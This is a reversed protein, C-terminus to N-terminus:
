TAVRDELLHLIIDETQLHPSCMVEKWPICHPFPHPSEPHTWPLCAQCVRSLWRLFTLMLAPFDHQCHAIRQTPSPGKGRLDEELSLRSFRLCIGVSPWGLSQRAPGGWYWWPWRPCPLHSFSGWGLPAWPSVVVLRLTPGRTPDQSLLFPRLYFSHFDSELMSKLWLANTNTVLGLLYAM